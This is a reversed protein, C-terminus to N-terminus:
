TTNGYDKHSQHGWLSLLYMLVTVAYESKCECKQAKIHMPFIGGFSTLKESKIQIKAM